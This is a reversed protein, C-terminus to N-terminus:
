RPLFKTKFISIYKSNTFNLKLITIYKIKGNALPLIIFSHYNNVNKGSKLSFNNKGYPLKKKILLEVLEKNLIYM